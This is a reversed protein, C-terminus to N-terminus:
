IRTHAEKSSFRGEKLRKKLNNRTIQLPFVVGFCLNSIQNVFLLLKLHKNVNDSTVSCQCKFLM